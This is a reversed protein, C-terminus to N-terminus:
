WVKCLSTTKSYPSGYTCNFTKIFPEFNRLTMTLRVRGTFGDMDKIIGSKRKDMPDNCFTRAYNMFFLQEFTLREFGPILFKDDNNSEQLYRKYARYVVKLGGSDAVVKNMLCTYNQVVMKNNKIDRAYEDEFCKKKKMYEWEYKSTDNHNEKRQNEFDYTRLREDVRTVLEQGILFGMCGYQLSKPFRCDFCPHRVIVPNIMFRNSHYSYYANKYVLDELSVIGSLHKSVYDVCIDMNKDDHPVVCSYSDIDKLMDNITTNTSYEFYSYCKEMFKTDRLREIHGRYFKLFSLRKVFKRKVGDTLYSQKENVLNEMEYKNAEFIKEFMDYLHDYDFSETLKKMYVSLFAYFGFHEVKKMCDNRVSDTYVECKETMRNIKQLARYESDFDGRLAKKKFEEFDHANEVLCGRKDVDSQKRVSELWTGCTYDYFDDCPKRMQNVYKLLSKSTVNADFLCNM